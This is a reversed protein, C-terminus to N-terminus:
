VGFRAPDLDLVNKELHYVVTRAMAALERANELSELRSHVEYVEMLPMGADTRRERPSSM